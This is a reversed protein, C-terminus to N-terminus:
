KYINKILGDKTQSRHCYLDGWWIALDYEVSRKWKVATDCFYKVFAEYFTDTWQRVVVASDRLEKIDIVQWDTTSISGVAWCTAQPLFLYCESVPILTKWTSSMLLDKFKWHSYYFNLLHLLFTNEVDCTCLQKFMQTWWLSASLIMFDAKAALWHNRDLWIPM